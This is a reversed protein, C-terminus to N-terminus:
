TSFLAYSTSFGIMEWILIDLGSPHHIKVYSDGTRKNEIVERSYDM